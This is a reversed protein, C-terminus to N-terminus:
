IAHAAGHNPRYYEPVNINDDSDDDDEDDYDITWRLLGDAATSKQKLVFTRSGQKIHARQTKADATGLDALDAVLRSECLYSFVSGLTNPTRPLAPGRPRLQLIALVALMFSMIAISTWFSFLYSGYMQNSRFPVGPLAVILIESLLATFALLGPFFQRRWLSTFLTTIPHLTRTVLISKRAPAHGRALERFPELICTARELRKWQMQILMGICSLFFRPGFGEGNFFGWFGKTSLTRHDAIVLSMTGVVLLAFAVDRIIRIRQRSRRYNLRRANEKGDNAHHPAYFERHGTSSGQAEDGDNNPHVLGYRTSGGDGDAAYSTLHYRKDVLVAEMEKQTADPHVGRFDDVVSQNHLLSAMAAISSPDQYLGSRYKWQLIGFVILILASVGLLSELVRAIGPIVRVEAGCVDHINCFKAPVLLESAFPTLLGIWFYLISVSLMLWHGKVMAVFPDSSDNTSLYNLNVFDKAVAGNPRTLFHFPEIMKTAAYVMGVLNRIIVALFTSLYSGTFYRSVTMIQLPRDPRNRGSGGVADASTAPTSDTCTVSVFSSSPSGPFTTTLLFGPLVTTVLRGSVSTTMTSSPISLTVASGPAGNTSIRAIIPPSTSERAASSAIALGPMTSVLRLESVTKTVVVSTPILSSALPITAFTYPTPINSVLGSLSPSEPVLAVLAVEAVSQDIDTDFSSIANLMDPLTAGGTVAPLPITTLTRFRGSSASSGPESVVLAVGTASAVVQPDPLPLTTLTGPVSTRVVSGPITLTARSRSLSTTVISSPLSTTFMSGAIAVVLPVLPAPVTELPGSGSSAIISPNADPDLAAPASDAVLSVTTSRAQSSTSLQLYDAGPSPTPDARNQNSSKGTNDASPPAVLGSGSGEAQGPPGQAAPRVAPDSGGNDPGPAPQATKGGQVSGSPRSSRRPGKKTSDGSLLQLIINVNNSFIAGLSSQGSKAEHSSADSAQRDESENQASTRSQPLRSGSDANQSESEIESTPPASSGDTQNPKGDVPPQAGVRETNSDVGQPGSVSEGKFQSSSGGPQTPSNDVSPQGEARGTSLGNGQPGPGTEGKPPTSSDRPSSPTDGGPAKSESQGTNPDSRPRDQPPSSGSARRDSKELGLLQGLTLGPPKEAVQPSSEPPPQSPRSSQGRVSDMSADQKVPEGADQQSTSDGASTAKPDFVVAAGNIPRDRLDDAAFSQGQNPPGEESTSSSDPRQQSLGESQGRVGDTPADQKVPELADQQSTGDGASATGPDSVTAAGNIPRDTLDDRASGQRQNSTGDENTSSGTNPGNPPGHSTPQTDRSSAPKARPAAGGIARVLNQERVDQRPSQSDPPPTAVVTFVVSVEETAAGVAKATTAADATVPQGAVATNPGDSGTSTYSYVAGDLYESIM